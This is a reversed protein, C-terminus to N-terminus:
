SAHSRFFSARMRKIRRRNLDPNNPDPFQNCYAIAEENLEALDLPSLGPQVAISVSGGAESTSIVIQGNQVGTSYIASNIEALVQQLPKSQQTATSLAARIWSRIHAIEYGM